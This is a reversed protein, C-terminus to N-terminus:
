PPRTCYIPLVVNTAVVGRHVVEPRSSLGSPNPDLPETWGHPEDANPHPRYWPSDEADAVTPRRVATSLTRSRYAVLVLPVGPVCHGLALGARICSTTRESAAFPHRADDEASFTAWVVHEGLRTQELMKRLRSGLGAGEKIAQKLMTEAEARSMHLDERMLMAYTGFSLARGLVNPLHPTGLEEGVLKTERCAEIWADGPSQQDRLREAFRELLRRFDALGLATEQWVNEAVRRWRADAGGSWAELQREVVGRVGDDLEGLV